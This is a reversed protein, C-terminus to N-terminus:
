APIWDVEIQESEESEDGDVLEGPRGSRGSETSSVLQYVVWALALLGLGMAVYGWNVVHSFEHREVKRGEINSPEPDRMM